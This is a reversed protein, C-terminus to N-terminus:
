SLNFWEQHQNSQVFYLLICQLFLAFLPILYSSHSPLSLCVSLCYIFLCVSLWDTLWVSLCVTSLYVSLWVCSSFIFCKGNPSIVFKFDLAFGISLLMREIPSSGFGYSDYSQIIGPNGIFRGVMNAYQNPGDRIEVYDDPQALNFIIFKYKIIHYPPAVILWRCEQSNPYLLLKSSFPQFHCYQKVHRQNNVFCLLM